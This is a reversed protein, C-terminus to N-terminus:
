GPGDKQFADIVVSLSLSKPCLGHDSRARRSATYDASRRGAGLPPDCSRAVKATRFADSTRALGRGRWAYLVSPSRGVSCWTGVDRARLSHTTEPGGRKM